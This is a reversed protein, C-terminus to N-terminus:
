KGRYARSVALYTKVGQFQPANILNEATLQYHGPELVIDALEADLQDAGHSSIHPSSAKTYLLSRENGNVVQVLRLSIMLPAGPELWRGSEDQYSGGALGWVKEREINNGEQYYYRLIIAYRQRKRIVLESSVASGATVVSFPILLPANPNHTMYSCAGLWPLACSGFWLYRLFGCVKVNLFQKM